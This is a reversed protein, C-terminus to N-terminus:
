LFSQVVLLYLYNKASAFLGLATFTVAVAELGAYGTRILASTVFTRIIFSSGVCVV